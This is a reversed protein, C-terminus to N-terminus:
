APTAAAGTAIETARTGPLADAAELADLAVTLRVALLALRTAQFGLTRGRDADDQLTRRHARVAARLDALERETLTLTALPETM